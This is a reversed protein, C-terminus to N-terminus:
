RPWDLRPEARGARPTRQPDLRRRNGREDHYADEDYYPAPPIPPRTAPDARARAQPDMGPPAYFTEDYRGHDVPEPMRLALSRIEGQIEDLRLEVADLRGKVGFVAFPMCLFAMAFFLAPVLVALPVWWPLWDPLAPIVM